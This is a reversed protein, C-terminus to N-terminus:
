QTYYFTDYLSYKAQLPNLHHVLCYYVFSYNEYCLHNCNIANLRIFLLKMIQLFQQHHFYDKEIIINKRNSNTDFKIM